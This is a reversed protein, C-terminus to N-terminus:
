RCLEARVIVDGMVTVAERIVVFDRPQLRSQVVVVQAGLRQVNHRLESADGALVAVCGGAMADEEILVAIDGVVEKLNADALLERLRLVREVIPLQPARGEVRPRHRM